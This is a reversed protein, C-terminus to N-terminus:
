LIGPYYGSIVKRPSIQLRGRNVGPHGL